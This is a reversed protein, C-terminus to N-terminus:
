VVVDQLRLFADSDLPLGTDNWIANDLRQFTSNGSASPFTEDRLRYTVERGEFVITREPHMAVGYRTTTTASWVGFASRCARSARSPWRGAPLALLPLPGTGREEDNKVVPM